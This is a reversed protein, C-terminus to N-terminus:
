IDARPLGDLHHDCCSTNITTEYDSIHVILPNDQPREKAAFINACAEAKTADAFLGYVTETPIAVVYVGKIMYM